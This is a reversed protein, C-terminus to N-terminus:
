GSRWPFASGRSSPNCPSGSRCRCSRTPPTSRPARRVTPRRSTPSGCCAPLRSSRWPPPAPTGGGRPDDPRPDSRGRRPQAAPGAPARVASLLPGALLALFLIDALNLLATYTSLFRTLDDGEYRAAARDFLLFDVIQSGMASLVQYGLLLLAIGSVFLTRLPPRTVPRQGAVPVTRVEPHRHETFLLLGLFALQAITTALLLNETSGLLSLLPVGLLGGVLFGVAFGSVIRPFREKM